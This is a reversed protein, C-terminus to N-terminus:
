VPYHTWHDDETWAKRLIRPPIEPESGNTHSLWVAATSKINGLGTRTPVIQRVITTHRYPDKEVAPVDQRGFKSPYWQTIYIQRYKRAVRLVPEQTRKWPFNKDSSLMGQNELDEISFHVAVGRETWTSQNNRAYREFVNTPKPDMNLVDKWLSDFLDEESQIGGSEQLRRRETFEMGHSNEATIGYVVGTYFLDPLRFHGHKSATTHFRTGITDYYPEPLKFMTELNDL